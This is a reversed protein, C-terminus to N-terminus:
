NKSRGSRFESRAIRRVPRPQRDVIVLDVLRASIPHGPSLEAELMASWRRGGDRLFTPSPDFIFNGLSYVILKGRYVETDQVVHPHHGIVLDAGSDIAARAIEKQRPSHFFTYEKGAHMSVILFDVKRRAASCERRIRAIDAMAVGPEDHRLAVVAPFLGLYALFGTKVGNREIIRLSRAEDLTEGGGVPAMGSLKVNRVTEALAEKGFDLSHNNALSLVDFGAEALALAGRTQARFNYQKPVPSGGTALCCELNGFAVDAGRLTAKMLEFPYGRGRASMAEDVGNALCIDGVAVLRIVPPAKETPRARLPGGSELRRASAVGLLTAATGILLGIRARRVGACLFHSTM